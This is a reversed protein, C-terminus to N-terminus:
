DEGNIASKASYRAVKVVNLLLAAGDALLCHICMPKLFMEGTKLSKVRTQLARYNGAYM